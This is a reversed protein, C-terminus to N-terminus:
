QLLYTYIVQLEKRAVNPVRFMRFSSFVIKEQREYHGLDATTASSCLRQPCTPPDQSMPPFHM